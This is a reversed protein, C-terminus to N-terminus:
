IEGKRMKDWLARKHPPLFDATLKRAAELWALKQDPTLRRYAALEEDSHHHRFGRTRAEAAV